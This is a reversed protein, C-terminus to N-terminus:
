LGVAWDKEFVMELGRGAMEVTVGHRRTIVRALTSLDQDGNGDAGQTEQPLKYFKRRPLEKTKYIPVISLSKLEQRVKDLIRRKSEKYSERGREKGEM